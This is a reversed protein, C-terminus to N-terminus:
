GFRSYLREIKGYGRTGEDYDSPKIGAAKFASAVKKMHAKYEPTGGTAGSANMVEDIQSTTLGKKIMQGGMVFVKIPEGGDGGGGGRGPKGGGGSNGGM